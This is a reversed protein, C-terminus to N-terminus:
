ASPSPCIPTTLTSFGPATRIARAPARIRRASGTKSDCSQNLGVCGPGGDLRCDSPFNGCHEFGLEEIPPQTSGAPYTPNLDCYKGAPNIACDSDGICQQCFNQYGAVGSASIALAPPRSRLDAAPPGPKCDQDSMCQFCAGINGSLDCTYTGPECIWFAPGGDGDPGADAALAMSCSVYGGDVFPARAAGTSSGGTTAFGTGGTSSTAGATTGPYQNGSDHNGRQRLWGDGSVGSSAGASASM